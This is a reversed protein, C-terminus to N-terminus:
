CHRPPPVSPLPPSIHLPHTRKLAVWCPGPGNRGPEAWVGVPAVLGRSGGGRRLGRADFLQDWLCARPRLSAPHTTIQGRQVWVGHPRGSTLLSGRSLVSGLEGAGPPEKESGRAAPPEGLLGQGCSWLLAHFHCPTHACARYWM